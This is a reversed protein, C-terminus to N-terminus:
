KKLLILLVVLVLNIFLSVGAGIAIALAIPNKFIELPSPASPALDVTKGTEEIKALSDMDIVRRAHIPSKNNKVARLDEIMANTSGYREERKKAMAVDIIEGLGSSLAPNVHDAPVLPEKLHKHM